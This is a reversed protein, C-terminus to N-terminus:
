HDDRPSQSRQIRVGVGLKRLEKITDELEGPRLDSEQHHTSAREENGQISHAVALLRHLRKKQIPTLLIEGVQLYRQGFDILRELQLNALLEYGYGDIQQSIAERLPAPDLPHKQNAVSRLLLADRAKEMLLHRTQWLLPDRSSARRLSDGLSLLFKGYRYFPKWVYNRREALDASQLLRRELERLQLRFPGIEPLRYGALMHFEPFELIWDEDSCPPPSPSWDTPDLQLFSFSQGAPQFSDKLLTMFDYLAAGGALNGFDFRILINYLDIIEPQLDPYIEAASCLVSRLGAGFQKGALRPFRRANEIALLTFDRFEDRRPIGEDEELVQARTAEDLKALQTATDSYVMGVEALAEETLTLCRELSSSPALMCYHIRTNSHALLDRFQPEREVEPQRVQQYFDLVRQQLCHFDEAAAAESPFLRDDNICAAVRQSAILAERLSTEDPPSKSIALLEQYAMVQELDDPDLCAYQQALRLARDRPCAQDQARVGTNLLLSLVFLSSLRYRISPKSSGTM